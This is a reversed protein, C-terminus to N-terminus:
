GSGGTESTADAEPAGLDHWLWPTPDIATPNAESRPGPTSSRHARQALRESAEQALHCMQRHVISGPAGHLISLVRREPNTHLTEIKPSRSLFSEFLPYRRRRIEAVLLALIDQKEGQGYNVRLDVLSLLIRARDWPRDLEDLFDFVKQAETMSAHDTVLVVALDSAAIANQTLVELDSKTDIIVLGHWGTRDLVTRLHFPNGIEGKLEGVDPGTPVYHIGYQGLRLASALNGRRMASTVTEAPADPALAFMRDITPQEDFGLILIPLDERLARLYIALNTAVTTKGVGGKNSTVTLVQFPRSDRERDQPRPDVVAVPRDGVVEQVADLFRSM